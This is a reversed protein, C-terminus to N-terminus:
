RRSHVLCQNFREWQAISVLQVNMAPLIQTLFPQKTVSMVQLVSDLLRVEEVTLVAQATKANM